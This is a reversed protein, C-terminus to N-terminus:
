FGRYSKMHFRIQENPYIYQQGFPCANRALCGSQLCDPENDGDLHKFCPKVNLTAGDFAGVPCASLCPKDACNDCPHVENGLSGNILKIENFLEESFEFLFMGRLAHWLGYEPHIVIGLPSPKTSQVHRALRQFPWYPKDFPFVVQSNLDTALAELIRRTWRNMPDSHGDRFECSRAFHVWMDPGANGILLGLKGNEHERGLACQSTELTLGGLALLGYDALCKKLEELNFGVPLQTQGVRDGPM